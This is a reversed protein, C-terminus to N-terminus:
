AGFRRRKFINVTEGVLREAVTKPDFEAEIKLVSLKSLFEIAAANGNIFRAADKETTILDLGAAAAEATLEAINHDTYSHHDGFERVIAVEAGTSGVTDFFKQPNGIGAFALFRRDAFSKSNITRVVAQYLPKGARAAQRVIIDAANGEGLKVIADARQLQSRLPARLPGGPIIHGNGIGRQGDVVILSLDFRLRASQFGDDMIAFDCGADVLLKAGAKRNKTVATPGHRSLLMAEDGAHWASDHEPDALRPHVLGAGHGRTLFGPSFGLKKAAKALTIAIPTKGAGGVTLNGVCLVPIPAEPPTTM